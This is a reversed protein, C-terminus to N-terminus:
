SFFSLEEINGKEDFLYFRTKKEKFLKHSNIIELAQGLYVRYDNKRNKKFYISIDENIRLLQSNNIIVDKEKKIKNFDNKKCLPLSELNEICQKAVLMAYNYDYHKNEGTFWNYNSQSEKILKESTNLDLYTYSELNATINLGLDSLYVPTQYYTVDELVISSIKNPLKKNKSIKILEKEFDEYNNFGNSERYKDWMLKPSCLEFNIARGYGVIAKEGKHNQKKEKSMFFIFDGVDFRSFNLRSSLRWFNVKDRQFLKHSNLMDADAIYAISAM